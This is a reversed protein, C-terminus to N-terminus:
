GERPISDGLYLRPLNQGAGVHLDALKWGVAWLEAARGFEGRGYLEVGIREVLVGLEGLTLGPLVADVDEAKLRM